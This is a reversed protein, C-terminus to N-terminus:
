SFISLLGVIVDLLDIGNTVADIWRTQPWGFLWAPLPHLTTPAPWAVFGALAGVQWHRDYAWAGLGIAATLGGIWLDPIRHLAMTRGEVSESARIREPLPDTSRPM